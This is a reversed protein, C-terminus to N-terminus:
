MVMAHSLREVALVLAKVAPDVDTGAEEVAAQAEKLHETFENHARRRVSEAQHMEAEFRGLGSM